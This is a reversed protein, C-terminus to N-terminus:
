GLQQSPTGSRWTPLMSEVVGPPDLMGTPQNLDCRSNRSGLDPIQINSIKHHILFLSSIRLYPYERSEQKSTFVQVTQKRSINTKTSTIVAHGNTVATKSVKTVDQVQDDCCSFRSM